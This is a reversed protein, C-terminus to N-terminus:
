AKKAEIVGAKKLLAAVTESPQAGVGLWYKVRDEKCSFQISEDKNAPDYTGLEEIPKGDRPSRQDIANLRYVPHHTRGFRKLRLKVV